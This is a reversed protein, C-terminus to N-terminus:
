RRSSKSPMMRKQWRSCSCNKSLRPKPMVVRYDITPENGAYLALIVDAKQRTYERSGLTFHCNDNTYNSCGAFKYQRDNRHHLVVYGDCWQCRLRVSRWLRQWVSDSALNVIAAPLWGDEMRVRSAVLKLLQWLSQPPRIGRRRVEDAVVAQLAELKHAANPDDDNPPTGLLALVM